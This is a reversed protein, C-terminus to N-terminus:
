DISHSILRLTGAPAGTTLTWSTIDHAESSGGTRAAFGVYAEGEDNVAGLAALDVALGNLVRVGDLDVSLLGGAYVIRVQYPALQGTPDLLRGPSRLALGDITTLDVLALVTGASAVRLLAASPEGGNMYTDFAVTLANATNGQDANSVALANGQASNQVLFALGDAGNGNDTRTIHMGFTTEFGDGVKQRKRFWATGSQNGLAATLRLRDADGPLPLNAFDNVIAANGILSLENSSEDFNAYDIEEIDPSIISVSWTATSVLGVGSTGTVTYTTDATPHVVFSATGPAIPVAGTGDDFTGSVAGLLRYTLTLSDGDVITPTNGSISVFPLLSAGPLPIFDATAKRATTGM